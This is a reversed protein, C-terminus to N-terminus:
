DSAQYSVPPVYRRTKVERAHPQGDAGWVTATPERQNWRAVADGSFPHLWPIIDPCEVVHITTPGSHPQPPDLLIWPPQESARFQCYRFGTPPPTSITMPGGTWPCTPLTM